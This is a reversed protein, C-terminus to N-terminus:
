QIKWHRGDSPCVTGRVESTGAITQHSTVFQRCTQNGLSPSVQQIVGASGTSPNAWALPAFGVDSKGVTDAIVAKDTLVTQSPLPLSATVLPETTSCGCAIAM